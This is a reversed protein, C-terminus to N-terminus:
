QKKMANLSEHKTFKLLNHASLSVILSTNAATDGAWVKEIYFNRSRNKRDVRSITAIRENFATNVVISGFLFFILTLFDSTNLVSDSANLTFILPKSHIHCVQATEYRHNSVWERERKTWGCITGIVQQFRSNATCITLSTKNLVRAHCSFYCM